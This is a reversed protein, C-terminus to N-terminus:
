RRISKTITESQWILSLYSIIKQPIANSNLLLSDYFDTNDFYHDILYQKQEKKPLVPDIKNFGLFKVKM